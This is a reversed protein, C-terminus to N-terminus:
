LALKGAHKDWDIIILVNNPEKAREVDEKLVDAALKVL